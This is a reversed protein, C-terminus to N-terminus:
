WVTEMVLRYACDLAMASNMSAVHCTVAAADALDARHAVLFARRPHLSFTDLPRSSPACNAVPDDLDIGALSPVPM